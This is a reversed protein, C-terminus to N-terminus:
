TPVTTSARTKVVEEITARVAERLPADFYDRKDIARWLRRWKQVTRDTPNQTSTVESLLEQYEANRAEILDDVLSRAARKMTPKADWVIADGDAELVKAAVWELRERNRHSTPLAVLGDGIQAVGLDRLQRWVAIRPTSPERPIRYNLLVWGVEPKTVM